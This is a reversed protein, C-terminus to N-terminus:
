PAVTSAAGGMATGGRGVFRVADASRVVVRASPDGLIRAVEDSADSATRRSRARDDDREISGLGEQQATEDVRVLRPATRHRWLAREGVRRRDRDDHITWQGM